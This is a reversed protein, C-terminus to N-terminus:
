AECERELILRLKDLGMAAVYILFRSRDSRLSWRSARSFCSLGTPTKIVTAIIGEPDHSPGFCALHVIDDVAEVDDVGGAGKMTAEAFSELKTQRAALDHSEFEPEVVVQASELYQRHNLDANFLTALRGGTMGEYLKLRWSKKELLQCIHAALTLNDRACIKHGLRKEAQDLAGKLLALAENQIPHKATLTVALCGEAEKVAYAVSLAKTELGDLIIGLRSEPIGCTRFTTAEFFLDQQGQLKRIRPRVQEEFMLQMERPVGPMAAMAGQEEQLWFGPATGARNHLLESNEPHQAQRLNSASMERGLSAFFARLQKVTDTDTVLRLGLAEAVAERTLDDSTPGLGGTILVLNAQERSLELASKIVGIRDACSVHFVVEIGMSTLIRSLKSSNTDVIRGETIECGIALIAAKIGRMRWVRWLEDEDNM